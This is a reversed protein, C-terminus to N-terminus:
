DVTIPNASTNGAEVAAKAAAEVAELLSQAEDKPAAECAKEILDEIDETSGDTECDASLEEVLLPNDELCLACCLSDDMMFCKQKFTLDCGHCCVAMRYKGIKNTLRARRREKRDKRAKKKAAREECRKRKKTAQRLVNDCPEGMKVAPFETDFFDTM